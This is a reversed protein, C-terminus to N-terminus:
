YPIRGVIQNHASGRHHKFCLWHIEFPKAYDDHHAQVELEGCVECPQRILRGDRLANSVANRAAYSEPNSARRKRQYELALGNELYRQFKLRDYERIRERLEPHLRRNREYTKVCDKCKNLHGDGMAPHRYFERLPKAGGCKFCTKM